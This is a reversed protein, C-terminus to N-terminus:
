RLRLFIDYKSVWIELLLFRKAPQRLILTEESILPILDNPSRQVRNKGVLYGLPYTNSTPIGLNPLPTRVEKTHEAVPVEAIRLWWHTKTKRFFRPCIKQILQFIWHPQFIDEKSPNPVMSMWYPLREM